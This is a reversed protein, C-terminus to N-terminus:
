PVNYDTLQPSYIAGGWFGVILGVVIGHVLGSRFVM